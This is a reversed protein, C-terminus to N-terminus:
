WYLPEQQREGKRLVILNERSDTFTAYKRKLDSEHM